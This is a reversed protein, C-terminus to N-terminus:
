GHLHMGHPGRAGGVSLRAVGEPTPSMGILSAVDSTLTSLIPQLFPPSAAIILAIAAGTAAAAEGLSMGAEALAPVASASSSVAEAASAVQETSVSAISYLSATVATGSHVVAEILDAGPLARLARSRTRAIPLSPFRTSAGACAGRARDLTQMSTPRMAVSPSPTCLRVPGPLVVIVPDIPSARHARHSGAVRTQEHEHEHEHKKLPTASGGM